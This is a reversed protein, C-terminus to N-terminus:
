CALHGKFKSMSTKWEDGKCSKSECILNIFLSFKCIMGMCAYKIWNVKLISESTECQM